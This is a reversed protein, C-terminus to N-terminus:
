IVGILKYLYLNKTSTDRSTLNQKLINGVFEFTNAQTQKRISVSYSVARLTNALDPSPEINFLEFTGVDSGELAFDRYCTITSYVRTDYSMYYVIFAFFRYKNILETSVEFTDGSALPEDGENGYFVYNPVIQEALTAQIQEIESEMDEFQTDDTLIYFCGTEKTALANYQATTGVWFKLNSRSNQEKVKEVFGTDVDAITHGEVAQTIASLIQEKTMSETLNNGASLVYYKGSEM